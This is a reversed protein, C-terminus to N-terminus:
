RAGDAQHQHRHKRDRDLGSGRANSTIWFMMNQHIIGAAYVRTRDSDRDLRRREPRPAPGSVGNNQGSTRSRSEALELEGQRKHEPGHLPHPAAIRAPRRPM